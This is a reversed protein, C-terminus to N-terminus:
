WLDGFKLESRGECRERAGLRRLWTLAAQEGREEVGGADTACGGCRDTERRDRGGTGLVRRLSAARGQLFDSVTPAPDGADLWELDGLLIAKHRPSQTMLWTIEGLVQSVTKPPPAAHTGVASADSQSAAQADNAHPGRDFDAGLGASAQGAASPAPEEAVIIGPDISLGGNGVGARSVLRFLESVALM